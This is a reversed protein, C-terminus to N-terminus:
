IIKIILDTKSKPCAPPPNPRPYKKFFYERPNGKCCPCPKKKFIGVKGTDWCRECYFQRM